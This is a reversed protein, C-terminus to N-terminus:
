VISLISQGETSFIKFYFKGYLCFYFVFGKLVM